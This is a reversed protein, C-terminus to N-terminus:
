EACHTFVGSEEEVQAAVIHESVSRPRSVDCCNVCGGAREERMTHGVGCEVHRDRFLFFKLLHVDSASCTEVSVATGRNFPQGVVLSQSCILNEIREIGM